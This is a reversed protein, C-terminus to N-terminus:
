EQDTGPSSSNPMVVFKCRKRLLTELRAPELLRDKVIKAAYPQPLCESFKLQKLYEEPVRFAARVAEANFGDIKEFLPQYDTTEKICIWFDSVRVDTYGHQRLSDAIALNLINGAFTFWRIENAGPVVLVADATLDLFSHESRLSSIREQARSSWRDSVTDETLLDHIGRCVKFSLGFQTSLWQSKGKEDAPVVYAIRKPWELSTVAWSRGGLSLITPQDPRHRLFAIQHVTGLEKRGHLVKFLPPSTFVSVLELFHRRGYLAEGQDGFSLRAGDSFLITQELLHGIVDNVDSDSIQSFAPLRAIWRPWDQVGIGQEQLALAMLQQAFLHLPHKPPLVPEVFGSEWLWIIAGARLLANDNTALFLCNRRAGQRRGTRGLRQLFSAVSHPADIQIVRDLDGVDIGLELTSTAVIVCDQAQAFAEEASRREEASLSSHSLFTSMGLRRLENGLEEVRARSDCFVLRKEGRHLRSIVIAANQLSAVYDLRVDTEAASAQAQPNLVRKSGECHGAMWELLEEPNGVTASLGIRQLERGALRSVRELVALLHWGRDDGAFAHIEDIVVARVGKLMERAAPRASILMVELSEPTTLLIDPYNGRIRNKESEGIDGHWLGCRRGVMNCYEELRVHLNNLLARLPCIYLVSLGTWNESCIRSLIPFIAAETKGGATPALLLCHEGNQIPEISQEQLPRLERWGLTNVIHHQVLPDLKEFATV